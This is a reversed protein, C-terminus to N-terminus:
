ESLNDIVNQPPLIPKENKSYLAIVKAKLM